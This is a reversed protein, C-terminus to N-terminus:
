GSRADVAWANDVSSFYLVGKVMLPAGKINAATSRGGWYLPDGEKHQGGTRQPDPAMNARYFWQLTRKNVNSPNIQDLVRDRRRSYDGHYTPWSDTAPKKLLAPDLMQAYAAGAVASIALFPRINM